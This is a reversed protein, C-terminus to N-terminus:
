HQGELDEDSAGCFVKLAEAEMFHLRSPYVLSHPPGGFPVRNLKKSVAARVIQDNSGLRAVGVALWDKSRPLSMILFRLADPIALQAKEEARVDLLLLTHLGLRRNEILTNQVSEPVESDGAPLTITRGFKYNQLGTAGCIASIISSSHVIRTEIGKRALTLRLSVHTTAIMPDGPVLLSVDGSTTAAIIMRGDEDEINTRSLVTVHKGILEELNSPDLHPMLNTYFEAFVSKSERAAELGELTIGKESNLGMGVFTVRAM